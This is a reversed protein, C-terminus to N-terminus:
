GAQSEAVGHVIYIAWPIKWALISFHTAKEARPFRGLGGVNCTSEEGASGDPFSRIIFAICKIRM